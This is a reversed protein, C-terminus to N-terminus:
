GNALSDVTHRQSISGSGYEYGSGAIKTMLRRFFFKLILKQNGDQLDIVLVTPDILWLCQDASGSGYRFTMSRWCQILLWFSAVFYYFNLNKKSNKGSGYTIPGGPDPDVLWLHPDPDPEPNQDPDKWRWAFITLLVKIWVKFARLRTVKQVKLM